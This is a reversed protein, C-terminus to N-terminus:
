PFDEAATQNVHTGIKTMAMKWIVFFGDAPEQEM